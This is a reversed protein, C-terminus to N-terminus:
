EDLPALFRDLFVGGERLWIEGQRKGGLPRDHRLRRLIPYLGVDGRRSGDTGARLVPASRALSEGVRIGGYGIESGRRVRVGYRSRRKALLRLHGVGITLGHRQLFLAQVRSRMPLPLYGRAIHESADGPRPERPDASVYQKGGRQVLDSPGGRRGGASGDM